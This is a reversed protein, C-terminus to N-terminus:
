TTAIIIWVFSLSVDTSGRAIQNAHRVVIEYIADNRKGVASKGGPVAALAEM